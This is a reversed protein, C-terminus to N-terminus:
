RLSGIRHLIRFPYSFFRAAQPYDHEVQDEHNGRTSMSSSPRSYRISLPLPFQNFHTKFQSKLKTMNTKRYHLDLAFGFSLQIFIFKWNSGRYHSFHHSFPLSPRRHRDHLIIAIIIIRSHRVLSVYQVVSVTVNYIRFIVFLFIVTRQTM